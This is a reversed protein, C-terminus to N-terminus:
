KKLGQTFRKIMRQIERKLTKLNNTKYFKKISNHIRRKVKTKNIKKSPAGGKGPVASDLKATAVKAAEEAAKNAENTAKDLSASAKDAKGKIGASLKDMSDFKKEINLKIEGLTKNLKAITEGIGPYITFLATRALAQSLMFAVDGGSKGMIQAMRAAEELNLTVLETELGSRDTTPNKLFTLVYNLLDKDIGATELIPMAIGNFLNNVFGIKGLTFMSTVNNIWLNIVGGYTEGTSTEFETLKEEENLVIKEIDENLKILNTLASELSGKLDTSKVQNNKNDAGGYKNM